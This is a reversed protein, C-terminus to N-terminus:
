LKSRVFMREPLARLVERILRWRLSLTTFPRRAAYARYIREAAADATLTLRPPLQMGATMKTAVFGPVVSIVLVGSPALRQRLGSLFATFGAKASGYAYNRRKGREGAMSSVGIITGGGRREFDNAIVGLISAPGVYNTLVLQLLLDGNREASPQDGDAGVACLVVDPKPELARYFREHSPLDVADFYAAGAEVDLAALEVALPRLRDLRRGALVIDFGNRAFVRATAFGLDSSGGLVLLRRGTSM